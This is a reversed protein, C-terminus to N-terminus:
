EEGKVQIPYLLTKGRLVMMNDLRYPKDPDLRKIQVDTISSRGRCEWAPRKTNLGVTVMPCETWITYWDDLSLEWDWCYGVRVAIKGERRRKIERRLNHFQGRLSANERRTKDAREESSLNFWRQSSEKRVTRKDKKRARRRRASAKPQVLSSGDGQESKLRELISGISTISADDMELKSYRDENDM